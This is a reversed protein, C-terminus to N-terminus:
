ASFPGVRNSFTSIDLKEGSNHHRLRRSENEDRHFAANAMERHIRQQKAARAQRIGELTSAYLNM